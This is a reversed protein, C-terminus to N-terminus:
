SCTKESSGGMGEIAKSITNIMPSIDGGAAIAAYFNSLGSAVAQQVPNPLFSYSFLRHIKSDPM